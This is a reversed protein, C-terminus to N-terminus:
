KEDEKWWEKYTGCLLLMHVTVNAGIMWMAFHSSFACPILLLMWIRLFATMHKHIFRYLKKM